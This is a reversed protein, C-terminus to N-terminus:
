MDVLRDIHLLYKHSCQVTTNFDGLYTILWKTGVTPHHIIKQMIRSHADAWPLPQPFRYRSTRDELKGDVIGPKIHKGELTTIDSVTHIKLVTSAERLIVQGQDSFGAERAVYM